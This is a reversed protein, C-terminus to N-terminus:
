IAMELDREHRESASGLRRYALNTRKGEQAKRGFHWRTIVIAFLLLVLVLPLLPLLFFPFDPEPRICTTSGLTKNDYPLEWREVRRTLGLLEVLRWYLSLMAEAPYVLFFSFVVHISSYFVRVSPDVAMKSYGLRHFDVAYLLSESSPECEPWRIEKYSIPRLHLLRGSFEAPAGARPRVVQGQGDAESYLYRSGNSVVLVQTLNGAWLVGVEDKGGAALEYMRPGDVPSSRGAHFHLLEGTVDSPDSPPSRLLLVASYFQQGTRFRVKHKSGFPVANAVFMGNWCSGVRFTRSNVAASLSTLSADSKHVWPYFGSFPGLSDSRSVWTDYFNYMYDLGCLADYGEKRQEHLLKMADKVTWLVDNIFLIADVHDLVELGLQELAQNRAWSLRVIRNAKQKEEPMKGNHEVVHKVGITKLQESLKQLEPSTVDDTNKDSWVSVLLEGGRKKVCEALGVVSKRWAPLVLNANRLISCLLIRKSPLLRPCHDSAFMLQQGLNDFNKFFVMSTLVVSVLLYCAFFVMFCRFSQHLNAVNLRASWTMHGSGVDDTRLRSRRTEVM